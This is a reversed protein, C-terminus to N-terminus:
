VKIWNQMFFCSYGFKVKGTKKWSGSHGHIAGLPHAGGGRGGIGDVWGPGGSWPWIGQGGGGGGVSGGWWGRRRTRRVEMGMVWVCGGWRRRRWLLGFVIAIIDLTIMQWVVILLLMQHFVLGFLLLRLLWLWCSINLGIIISEMRLWCGIQVIIRRLRRRIQSRKRCDICKLGRTVVSWDNTVIEATRSNIFMSTSLAFVSGISTLFFLLM